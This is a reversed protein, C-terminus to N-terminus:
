ERYEGHKSSRELAQLRDTLKQVSDSAELLLRAQLYASAGGRALAEALKESLRSQERLLEVAEVVVSDM